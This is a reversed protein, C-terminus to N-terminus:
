REHGEGAAELRVMAKRLALESRILDIDPNGKESLRAEARAKAKRARETDIEHAFEATEALITVKSDAGVELFGGGVALKIEDSEGKIRVIGPVLVTVLPIHRPLIGIDGDLARASVQRCERSVVKREPTVVDVHMTIM